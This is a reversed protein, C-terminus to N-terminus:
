KKRRVIVDGARLPCDPPAPKLAGNQTIECLDGGWAAASLACAHCGKELDVEIVPDTM